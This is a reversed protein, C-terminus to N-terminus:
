EDGWSIDPDCGHAYPNGAAEWSEAAPPEGTRKFNQVADDSCRAVEHRKWAATDSSRKDIGALINELQRALFQSCHGDRADHDVDEKFALLQQVAVAWDKQLKSVREVSVRFDAHLQEQALGLARHRAEAHEAKQSVARYQSDLASLTKELDEIRKERRILAASKRGKRATM